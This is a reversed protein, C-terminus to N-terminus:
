VHFHTLTVDLSHLRQWVFESKPFGDADLRDPYMRRYMRLPLTNGQAGTDVKVRLKILTKKDRRVEIFTFAEDRTDSRCDPTTPDSMDIPSIVVEDFTDELDSEPDPNFISHVDRSSHTRQSSSNRAQRCQASRARGRSKSRGRQTNNGSGSRCVAQWHNKKRCKRCTTNYAPCFDRQRFSHTGGCNRCQRRSRVADVALDTPQVKALQRMHNISAEHTRGIELTQQLTLSKDKGLLEKQLDTYKVGAIFQEIVRDQFEKDDKFECKKAHLKLRSLFEDVTEDGRQAYKQLYLRAVRFNEKPQIQQTFKDWVVEPNKQEADDLGWSNYMRLGPAGMFLLIHDVQKHVAIDKVSFYLACQQKFIHIANAQDPDDWNMRPHLGTNEAM